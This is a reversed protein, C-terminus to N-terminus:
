GRPPGGNPPLTPFVATPADGTGSVASSATAPAPESSARRRRILLLALAGVAVLLGGLVTFPLSSGGEDSVPEFARPAAAALSAAPESAEGAAAPPSVAAEPSPSSLTTTAVAVAALTLRVSAVAGASGRVTTRASRYGDRAAVVTIRGAVVPEGAGSTISFRGSSNSTTRYEHGASDRVIVKAGAVAKGASDRVRGSVRSVESSPKKSSPTSTGSGHVSIGQHAYSNQGGLRVGVSINLGTTEGPNADPAVLTTAFDRSEGSKLNPETRCGTTCRLGGGIVVIATEAANGTNTVRFRLRVTQGPKVNEASVSLIRVPTPAGAAPAASVSLATAALAVAAAARSGRSRM